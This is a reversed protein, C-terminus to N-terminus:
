NPKIKHKKRSESYNIYHLVLAKYASRHAETIIRIFLYIFKIIHKDTIISSCPQQQTAEIIDSQAVWYVAAWQAGRDRPNELCSYQLPSGNGEGVSSSLTIYIYKYALYNYVEICLPFFIPEQHQSEFPCFQPLIQFLDKFPLINEWDGKRM